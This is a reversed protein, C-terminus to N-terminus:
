PQKGSQVDRWQEEVTQKYKGKIRPSNQHCVPCFVYYTTGPKKFLAKRLVRLVGLRSHCQDCHLPSNVNLYLDSMDFAVKKNWPIKETM